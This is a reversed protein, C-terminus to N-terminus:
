PKTRALSGSGRRRPQMSRKKDMRRQCVLFTLDDNVLVGRAHRDVSTLVQEAIDNARPTASALAAELREDGFMVGRRDLAETIGDTYLVLGDGDELRLHAEVFTADDLIGIAGSAGATVTETRGDTRKIYPSPHGANGLVIEGTEIELTFYIATFFLEPQRRALVAANMTELVLRPAVHTLAASRLESSIRAMHLAASVGKGSIDGVFVGLRGPAVWFVDYFDGGVAYASRYEVFLDLGEVAIVERPLFSRQIEAALELDHELRDRKARAERMRTNQVHMAATSAMGDLLDLGSRTPPPEVELEIVGVLEGRDLMPAVVRRSLVLSRRLTAVQRQVDEPLHADPSRTGLCDHALVLGDVERLHIRVAHALPFVSRVRDGVLELLERTDHSQSIAQVFSYLVGLKNHADELQRLDLVPSETTDPPVDHEDTDIDVLDVPDAVRLKAETELNRPPRGSPTGRVASREIRFAFRGFCLTDDPALRHRTVRSGNVMTGNTSGLDHLLLESGDASPVVRAHQWSIHTDDLVIHNYPGRGILLPGDVPLRVDTGSFGVLWFVLEERPPPRPHEGSVRETEWEASSAGLATPGDDPLTKRRPPAPETQSAATPGADPEGTGVSTNTSRM